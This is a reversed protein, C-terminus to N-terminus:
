IDILQCNVIGNIGLSKKKLKKKMNKGNRKVDLKRETNKVWTMEMNKKSKMKLDAMENERKEM